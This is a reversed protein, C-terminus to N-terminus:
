LLVVASVGLSRQPREITPRITRSCLTDSAGLLHLRNSGNRYFRRHLLMPIHCGRTFLTVELTTASQGCPIAESTFSM